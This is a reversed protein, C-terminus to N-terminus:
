KCIYDKDEYIEKIEERSSKTTISNVNGFNLAANFMTSAKLIDVSYNLTITHDESYKADYTFGDYHNYEAQNNNTIKWLSEAIEVDTPRAINSGELFIPEDDEFHYTVSYKIYGVDNSQEYTCTLTKKNNALVIILVIVIIIIAGIIPLLIKMNINTKKNDKKVKEEPEEDILPYGCHSCAKDDTSIEKKCEPCYTKPEIPCGCKPCAEAQDSIQKGCEPCKILAM